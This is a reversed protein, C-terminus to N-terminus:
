RNEVNSQILMKNTTHKLVPPTIIPRANDSAGIQSRRSFFTSSRYSKGSNTKTVPRIKIKNDIQNTTSDHDSDTSHHSSSSLRNCNVKNLSETSSKPSTRTSGSKNQPLASAGRHKIHAKNRQRRVVGDIEVQDTSGRSKLGFIMSARRLKSVWGDRGTDLSAEDEDGVEDPQQLVFKSICTINAVMSSYSSRIKLLKDDKDPNKYQRMLDLAVHHLTNADSSLQALSQSIDRFGVPIQDRGYHEQM